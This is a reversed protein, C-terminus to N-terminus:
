NVFKAEEVIADNERVILKLPKGKADKVFEVTIDREKMFFQNNKEPFLISTKDGITMNLQNNTAAILVKGANPAQYTGAHQKLASATVAIAKRNNLYPAPGHDYSFIRTMKWSGDKLLWLHTFKALGERREKKGAETVYFYHDGSLIAGYIVNSQQLSFLKITGPVAERRIRLGPNSCLNNKISNNLAALGSTIGGKDHYFEIDEAVFDKFKEVDCTNYAQWFLSDKGLILSSLNNVDAQAFLCTALFLHATTFLLLKKM